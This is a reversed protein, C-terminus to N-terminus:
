IEKSNSEQHIKEFASPSKRQQWATIITQINDEISSQCDIELDYTCYDHTKMHYSAEGIQRDGRKREHKELVELPCHLGVFFVDFDKLLVVLDDMWHPFEIIHEVILNNGASAFSPLVRHFGDFFKPRLDNWDFKGGKDKRSPSMGIDIFQDSAIYWFPENLEAKLAKCLTSKGSSSTGNILIIKSNM